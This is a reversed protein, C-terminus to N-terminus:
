QCNHVQARKGKAMTQAHYVWFLNNSNCSLDTNSRSHRRCLICLVNILRFLKISSKKRYYKGRLTMVYVCMKTRCKKENESIGTM